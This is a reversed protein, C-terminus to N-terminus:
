LKMQALAARGLLGYPNALTEPLEYHNYNEAVILEVPKGAAKVVATFERGHRQSSLTDLTEADFNVYTRRSSLSPGELDHMGSILIGGRVPASDAATLACAALHGGSSPGSLVSREPDGGFNRANRYVWAIAGRVQAAMPLLSGGADQVQVFDPVVFHVGARVFLEAAYSSVRASSSQWAGGHIHIHVPRNEGAARYIDLREIGTRGYARREPDGIRARAIDSNSALRAVLQEENPAYVVQNYAADSEAQTYNLFVKPRQQALAPAAGAMAAMIQRRTTM